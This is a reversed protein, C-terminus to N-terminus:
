ALRIGRWGDDIARLRKDPDSIDNASKVVRGFEALVRFFEPRTIYQDSRVKEITAVMKRVGDLLRHASALDLMQRPKGEDGPAPSRMTQIFKRAEALDAEQRDTSEGRDNLLAEYEDLVAEFTQAQDEPIPREVGRFSEHWALLAATTEEYRNIYDEFLGRLAAVEPLLNLPDSDQEHKEILERLEHRKIQSYRGHRIPNNGFHKDCRGIGPHDTGSGARSRCYKQRKTNWGRCYYNPEIEGQYAEPIWRATEHSVLTTGGGM